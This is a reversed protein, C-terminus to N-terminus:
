AWRVKLPPRIHMLAELKLVENANECREQRNSRCFLLLRSGISGMIAYM